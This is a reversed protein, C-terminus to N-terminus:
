CLQERLAKGKRNISSSSNTLKEMVSRCKQHMRVRYFHESFEAMFDELSLEFEPDTEDFVQLQHCLPHAQTMFAASSCSEVPTRHFTVELYELLALVNDQPIYFAGRNVAKIWSNELSSKNLRLQQVISSYKSGLRFLLYGCVYQLASLDKEFHRRIM